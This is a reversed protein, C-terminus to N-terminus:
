RFLTPDTDDDSPRGGPPPPLQDPPPTYHQQGGSGAVMTDFFRPVYIEVMSGILRFLDMSGTLNSKIREIQVRYKDGDEEGMHQFNNM